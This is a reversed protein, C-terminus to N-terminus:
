APHVRYRGALACIAVDVAIVFQVARSAHSAVQIVVVSGKSRYVVDGRSERCSTLQTVVGIEPGVAYEIVVVRSERQRSHVSRRRPEAGITVHVVVVRSQRRDAHSAMLGVVVGGRIRPMRSLRLEEGRGALGTMVGRVPQLRSEIVRLVRRERDIM